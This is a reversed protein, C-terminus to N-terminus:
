TSGDCHERRRREPDAVVTEYNCLVVHFRYRSQSSNVIEWDYQLIVQRSERSGHYTVVYM